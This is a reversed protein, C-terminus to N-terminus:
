TALVPAAITRKWAVYGMVALVTYVAYNFATLYLGQSFLMAVYVFDAAIWVVWNEIFKRALMWEAVLSAAVTGADLIPMAGGAMRTIVVLVIWSVVGVVGAVALTRAPARSIRLTSRNSGGYLWEYWGYASLLFYVIQLAANAPLHQRWFIVTFLAVNVLGLPWNWVNERVSLYVGVLGFAVAVLELCSMGHAVLWACLAAM